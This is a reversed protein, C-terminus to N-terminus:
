RSRLRPPTKWFCQYWRGDVDGVNQRRFIQIGDASESYQASEPGWASGDAVNVDRTCLLGIDMADALTCIWLRGASSVFDAHWSKVAYYCGIPWFSLSLIDSASFPRYAGIHVLTWSKGSVTVKDQLMSHHLWIQRCITSVTSELTSWPWQRSTIYLKMFNKPTFYTMFYKQFTESIDFYTFQNFTLIKNNHMFLM